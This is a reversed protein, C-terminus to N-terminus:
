LVNVKTKLSQAIFCNKHAKDHLSILQESTPIKNESFDIVPKLNIETVSMRGEDNKALTAVAVCSYSLVDYGSKSAVALFTLMHCSALSSALLEEPNAMENSGFYEAAASTKLSQNGSFSIDHNRNFKEYSFDESTKNWKLSITYSSM